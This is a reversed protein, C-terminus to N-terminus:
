HAETIFMIGDVVLPCLKPAISSQFRTTGMEIGNDGCKLTNIQDLKSYRQSDLTGSYM